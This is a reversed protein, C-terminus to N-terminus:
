QSNVVDIAKMALSKIDSDQNNLLVVITIDKSPLYAMLTVFGYATGTHGLSNGSTTPLREVGLGYGYSVSNNKFTLMEKMMKPSLLTKKVFLAKVFKALDEANSVLAGDGLGNGDNVDAFSVLKGDKNRDGYGTAINGLTAEHLETFTYKLELPKLIRHRVEQALSRRTTKEVILELLIYNSDTYLFKEGPSAQPRAGYIYKIAESATWPQLRSRHATAEKFENTEDYEAVGSTHNLLQRVTIKSSNTIHPSIDNPLYTAIARDLELKGEEVLKLVVVAVFSKSMSAISFGDTPKMPTKEELNSVGSAQLWKGQPTSIYIVAGPVKKERVAEDLLTQLESSTEKTFDLLKQSAFSKGMAKHSINNGVLYGASGLSILYSIAVLIKVTLLIRQNM